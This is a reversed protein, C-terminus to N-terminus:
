SRDKALERLERESAVALDELSWTGRLNVSRPKGCVSCVYLVETWFSVSNQLNTVARPTWKHRHM